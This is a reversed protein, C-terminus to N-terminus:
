RRALRRAVLAAVEAAMGQPLPLGQRLAAAEWQQVDPGAAARQSCPQSGAQTPTTGSGGSSSCSGGGSGCGAQGSAEALAKVMPSELMQQCLQRCGALQAPLGSGGDGPPHTGGGGGGGGAADAGLTPLRRQLWELLGILRTPLYVVENGPQWRQHSTCALSELGPQLRGAPASAPPAPSHIASAAHPRLPPLGCATARCGAKAGHGLRGCPVPHLPM